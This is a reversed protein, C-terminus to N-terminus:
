MGFAGARDLIVLMRLMQDDLHLEGTEDGKLFGKEMPKTM